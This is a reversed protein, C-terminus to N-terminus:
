NASPGTDAVPRSAARGSETGDIGLSRIAARALAEVPLAPAGASPPSSTGSAGEATMAERGRATRQLIPPGGTTWGIVPSAGSGDEAVAGVFPTSPGSESVRGLYRYFGHQRGSPREPSSIASVSSTGEAEAAETSSVATPSASSRSQNQSCGITAAVVFCSLMLLDPRVAM